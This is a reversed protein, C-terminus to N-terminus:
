EPHPEAGLRESGLGLEGGEGSVALVGVVREDPGLLRTVHQGVRTEGGLGGGPHGRVGGAPQSQGLRLM